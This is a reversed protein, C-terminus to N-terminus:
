SCGSTTGCDECVTCSGNRKVRMSSCETCQEGTYGQSKAEMAIAASGNEKPKAKKDDQKNLEYVGEENQQLDEMEGSGPVNGEWEEKGSRYEEKVNSYEGLSSYRIAMWTGIIAVGIIELIGYDDIGFWTGLIFIIFGIIDLLAAVCLMLIGEPSTLGKM